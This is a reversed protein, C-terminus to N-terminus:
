MVYAPDERECLLTVNSKVACSNLLHVEVVSYFFLCCKIKGRRTSKTKNVHLM